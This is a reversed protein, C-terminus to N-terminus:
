HTHEPYYDELKQIAERLEAAVEADVTQKAKMALLMVAHHEELRKGYRKQDPKVRQTLFYDSMIRIIKEAHEEKNMVWRVQQNLSQADTKGALENILKMSKEITVVHELMLKVRAHDDYIGCPIQCHSFASPALTTFLLITLLLHFPKRTHM